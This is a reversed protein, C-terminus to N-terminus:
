PFRLLATRRAATFWTGRGGPGPVAAHRPVTGLHPYHSVPGHLPDPVLSSLDGRSGCHRLRLGTGRRMHRGATGCQLLGRRRNLMRRSHHLIRAGGKEDRAAARSGCRLAAHSCAAFKGVGDASQGHVGHLAGIGTVGAHRHAHRVDGLHQPAVEELVVRAIRVPGVAVAEHERVAVARHQQVRHQVQGAIRQRDLLQLFNRCSPLLVAPGGRARGAARSRSWWRAREALTEGVRDAHRQRLLQQGRLNLRGPKLM